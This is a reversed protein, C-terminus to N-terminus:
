NCTAAIALIEQLLLVWIPAKVILMKMRKITLITMDHYGFSGTSFNGYTTAYARVFGIKVTVRM